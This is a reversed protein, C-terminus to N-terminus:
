LLRRQTPGYLQALAIGAGMKMGTSSIVNAKYYDGTADYPLARKGIRIESQAADPKDVFYITGGNLEPYANLEVAAVDNGSWDALPALAKKMAAENLDSVAIVSAIQPSYHEAYFAKVDEL